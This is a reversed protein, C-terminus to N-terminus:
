SKDVLKYNIFLSYFDLSNQLLYVDDNIIGRTGSIDNTTVTRSWVDRKDVEDENEDM